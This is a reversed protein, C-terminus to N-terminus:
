FGFALGLGYHTLIAPMSWDDHLGDKELTQEVSKPLWDIGGFVIVRMTTPGIIVLGEPLFRVGIEMSATPHLDDALPEPQGTSDPDMNTLKEILFRSVGGRISLYPDIFGFDKHISLGVLWHAYTRATRFNDNNMKPNSEFRSSYILRMGADIYDSLRHEITLDNSNIVEPLFHKAIIFRALSEKWQPKFGETDLSIIAYTRKNIPNIRYNIIVAKGAMLGFDVGIGNVRDAYDQMLWDLGWIRSYDLGLSASFGRYSAKAELMLNLNNGSSNFMYSTSLNVGLNESFSYLGYATLNALPLFGLEETEPLDIHPNKLTYHILNQIYESGLSGTASVGGSIEYGLSLRNGGIRVPKPIYSFAIDLIDNRGKRFKGDIEKTGRNTLVLFDLDVSFDKFGQGIHFSGTLQDDENVGLGLTWRDNGTGICVAFACASVLLLVIITFINKEM